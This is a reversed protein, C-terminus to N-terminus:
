LILNFIKLIDVRCLSGGPKLALDGDTKKGCGKMAIFLVFLDDNNTEDGFLDTKSM